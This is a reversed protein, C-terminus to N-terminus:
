KSDQSDIANKSPPSESANLEHSKDTLLSSQPVDTVGSSTSQVTAGSQSIAPISEKYKNLGAEYGALHTGHLYVVVWIGIALFPLGFAYVLSIYHALPSSSPLIRSRVTEYSEHFLMKRLKHLRYVGVGIACLVLIASFFGFPVVIKYAYWVFRSYSHDANQASVAFATTVFSQATVFPSLRDAIQKHEFKIEERLFKIEELQSETDSM